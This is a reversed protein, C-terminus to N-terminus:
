PMTAGQSGLSEFWEKAAAFLEALKTPDKGGAQAMGPNGGGGKGGIISVVSRIWVVADFQRAVLDKSLGAILTVKDEQVSSFLM